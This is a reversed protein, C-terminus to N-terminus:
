RALGVTVRPMQKYHGDGLVQSVRVYQLANPQPATVAQKLSMPSYRSPNSCGFKAQLIFARVSQAVVTTM